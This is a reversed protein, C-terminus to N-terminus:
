DVISNFPLSAEVTVSGTGCGIDLIMDGKRIRLKSLALARIEEKTMPIEEDREFFNDPIGPIVYKWEM